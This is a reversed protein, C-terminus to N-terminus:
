NFRRSVRWADAELDRARAHSGSLRELRAAAKLTAHWLANVEVPRGHRPTVPEGEVVADMWTLARGPEGGGILLDEGARIGFRTGHRYADVVDRVAPLLPSPRSPDRRALGFAEVALVFWLPADISGYDPESGDEPFANPLLGGSRRAAFSNLVRAFSRYRGVALALGPAALMADRGRDCSWPFGSLITAGGDATEVLFQEARGALEDFTPDGTRPFVDRRDRESQWLLAPDEALADRSFAAWAEGGPPLDWKWKLPSWLDEEAEYGREEEVPYHFRRYWDPDNAIRAGFARITLAPFDGSTPRVIVTDGSLQTAGSFGLEHQLDHLARFALLPRVSLEVARAGRNTWRVLAASRGRPLCLSREISFRETRHLWTPFPELGFRTLSARGDPYVADRYLQTSIGTREGGAVVFEECGAVLLVRRRPPTLSPAYWGHYKRTRAGAATGCAFGGLGDTELWEISLARAALDAGSYSLPNRVEKEAATTQEEM